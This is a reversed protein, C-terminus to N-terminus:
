LELCITSSWGNTGPKWLDSLEEVTAVTEKVQRDTLYNKRSFALSVHVGERTSNMTRLACFIPYSNFQQKLTSISMSDMDNTHKPSKLAVPDM